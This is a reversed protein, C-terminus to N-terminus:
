IKVAIISTDSIESLTTKAKERYTLLYLTRNVGHGSFLPAVQNKAM